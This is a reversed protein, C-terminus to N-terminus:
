SAAWSASWGRLASWSWTRVRWSRPAKGARPSCWPGSGAGPRACTRAPFRGGLYRAAHRLLYDVEAEGPAPDREVRAPEDTTGFLVQGQWPIMFLVRGDETRPIMLALDPPTFGADILVHIGSSVALASRAEPDDLRRLGDAFPGAANVVARARITWQEGTLRDRVVAGRVRAGFKVLDVVEVQNACAAGLSNATRALALTLRADNVQGDAYIVAAKLGRWDLQPFLREGERRGVIRSRGLSLRGALLDYLVLGLYVYIAQFWSTVPTMLRIAHALHPANALLRGREAM